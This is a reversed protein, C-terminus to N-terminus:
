RAWLGIGAVKLMAVAYMFVVVAGLLVALLISNRRRSPNPEPSLSRTM